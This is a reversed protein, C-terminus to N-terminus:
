RCTGGREGAQRAASASANVKPGVGVDGGSNLSEHGRGDHWLVPRGALRPLLDFEELQFRFRSCIGVAAGSKQSFSRPFVEDAAAPGERAPFGNGFNRRGGACFSFRAGLLPLCCPAPIRLPRASSGTSRAIASSRPCALTKISQRDLRFGGFSQDDPGAASGIEAAPRGRSSAERSGHCAPLM